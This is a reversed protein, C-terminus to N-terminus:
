KKTDPVILKRRKPKIKGLDIVDGDSDGNSIDAVEQAEVGTIGFVREVDAATVKTPEGM